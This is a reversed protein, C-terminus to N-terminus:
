QTTFACMAEVSIDLLELGQVLQMSLYYKLYIQIMVDHLCHM